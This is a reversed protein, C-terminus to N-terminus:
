KMDFVELSKKGKLKSKNSVKLRTNKMTAIVNFSKNKGFEKM